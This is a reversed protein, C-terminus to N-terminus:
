GLLGFEVKLNTSLRYPCGGTTARTAIRITRTWRPMERHITRPIGRCFQVLRGHLFPLWLPNGMPM